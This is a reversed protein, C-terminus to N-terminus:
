KMGEIVKEQKNNKFYVRPLLPSLNTMIQYVTSNNHSSVESAPINDGIVEVTDGVKVKDDVKISIMGMNITGIIEYKRGNISVYGGRASLPIGDAYGINATAVRIKEEKNIFGFYGVFENKYVDKVEIIESYLSLAPKLNVNNKIETKSIHFKKIRYKRRLNRLKNKFGNNNISVKGYGYLAIGIRVGNCIDIKPHCLMTGSRDIHIIPIDDLNIQNTIRKFEALQKDWYQDGIGLTGMHTYIGEVFLNDNSKLSEYCKKLIKPDDFGLRNMGSDIKLHIFLKLDTNKIKNAYWKSSVTITIKNDACVDLYNIDIPELCLVPINKNYKRIELAEDLNSVALYNIGNDILTNVIYAGHGYASGKVVGFYYDYKPYNKIISQVNHAINDLNIKVYTKRYM